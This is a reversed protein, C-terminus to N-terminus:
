TVGYGPTFEVNTVQWPYAGLEPQQCDCSWQQSCTRSSGCTWACISGTGVTAFRHDRWGFSERFRALPISISKGDVAVCKCKDALTCLYWTDPLLAPRGMAHM